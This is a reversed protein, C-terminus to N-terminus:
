FTQSPVTEVVDVPITVLASRGDGLILRIRLEHAGVLQDAPVEFTADIFGDPTTQDSGIQRPESHIWTEIPSQGALGSAALRVSEGLVLQIRGEELPVAEDGDVVSGLTLAVGLESNSILVQHGVREHAEFPEPYSDVYVVVDAIPKDSNAVLSPGEAASIDTRPPSISNVAALGITLALVVALSGVVMPNRAMPHRRIRIVVVAVLALLGAVTWSSIVKSSLVVFTFVFLGLSSAVISRRPRRVWRPDFEGFRSDLLSRIMSAIALLVMLVGIFDQASTEVSTFVPLLEVLAVFMTSSVATRVIAPIAPTWGTTVRSVVSGVLSPLVWMSAVVILARLSNM